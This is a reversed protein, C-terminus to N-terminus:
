PECEHALVSVVGSIGEIVDKVVCAINDVIKGDGVNPRQLEETFFEASTGDLLRVTWKCKM